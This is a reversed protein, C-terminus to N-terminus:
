TAGNDLNALPPTFIFRTGQGPISGLGIGNGPHSDRTHLRRFLDLIM